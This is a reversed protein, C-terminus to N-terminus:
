ISVFWRRIRDADRTQSCAHLRVISPSKRMPMPLNNGMTVGLMDDPAAIMLDNTAACDPRFFGPLDCLTTTIVALSVDAGATHGPKIAAWM